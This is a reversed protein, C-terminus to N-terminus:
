LLDLQYKSLIWFCMHHLIHTLQGVCRASFVVLINLPFSARMQKMRSLERQVASWQSDEWSHWCIWNEIWSWPLCDSCLYCFAPFKPFWNCSSLNVQQFLKLNQSKRICTNADTSAKTVLSLQEIHLSIHSFIHFTREKWQVPAHCSFMDRRYSLM